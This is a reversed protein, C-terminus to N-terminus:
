AQEIDMRTVLGDRFTYVHRVRADSLREGARSRVVQHVEVAISGDPRTAIELPEVHPDVQEWQRTWYARV